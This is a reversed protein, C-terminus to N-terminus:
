HALPKILGLKLSPSGAYLMTSVAAMNRPLTLSISLSGVMSFKALLWTKRLLRLPDHLLPLSSNSAFLYQLFSLLLSSAPALLILLLFVLCLIYSLVSSPNPSLTTPLSLPFISFLFFFSSSLLLHLLFSSFPLSLFPYSSHLSIPLPLLCTFFLFFFDFSPFSSSSTSSISCPYQLFLFFLSSWCSALPFSFFLFLIHFSFLTTSSTPSFSSTSFSSNHFLPFHLLFVPFSSNSTSFYSVSSLRLFLLQFLCFFNSSSCAFLSFSFPFLFDLSSSTSAIPASSLPPHLSSLLLLISSTYISWWSPYFLRYDILRMGQFKDSELENRRM